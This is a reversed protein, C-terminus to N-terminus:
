FLAEYFSFYVISSPKSPTSASRDSKMVIEASFQVRRDTRSWVCPGSPLFLGLGLKFKLSCNSVCAGTRLDEALHFVADLQADNVLQAADVVLLLMDCDAATRWADRVRDGQGQYKAESPRVIGPTDYLVM